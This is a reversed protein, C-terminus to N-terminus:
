KEESNKRNLERVAEELPPLVWSQLYIKVKELNDIHGNNSENKIYSFLKYLNGLAEKTTTKIQATRM